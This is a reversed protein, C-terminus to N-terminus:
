YNWIQKTRQTLNEFLSVGTKPRHETLNSFHKGGPYGLGWWPMSHQWWGWFMGKLAKGSVEWCWRGVSAVVARVGGRVKTKGTRASWLSEWLVYESTSTEKARGWLKSIRRCEQKYWYNIRGVPLYYEITHIYWLKMQRKIWEWILPCRAQKWNKALIFLTVIM